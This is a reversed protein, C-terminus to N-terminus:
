NIVHYLTTSGCRTSVLCSYPLLSFEVTDWVNYVYTDIQKVQQLAHKLSFIFGSSHFTHFIQFISQLNPFKSSFSM